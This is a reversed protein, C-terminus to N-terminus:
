ILHVLVQDPMSVPAIDISRLICCGFKPTTKKMSNAEYRTMFAAGKGVKESGEAYHSRQRNGKKTQGSGSGTKGSNTRKKWCQSEKHGNKGYYWCEAASKGQRNENGRSGRTGSPESNSDTDSRHRRGQDRKRLTIRVSRSFRISNVRNFLYSSFSSFILIYTVHM